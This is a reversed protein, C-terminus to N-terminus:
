YIGVNEFDIKFFSTKFVTKLEIINKEYHRNTQSSKNM